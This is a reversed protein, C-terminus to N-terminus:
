KALRKLLKIAKRRGYRKAIKYLLEDIRKMACSTCLRKKYLWEMDDPHSSFHCDRCVPLPNNRATERRLVDARGIATVEDDTLTSDSSLEDDELLPEFEFRAESRVDPVCAACSRARDFALPATIISM